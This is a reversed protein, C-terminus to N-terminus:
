MLPPVSTVSFSTFSKSKLLLGNFDMGPTLQLNTDMMENGKLVKKMVNLPCFFYVPLIELTAILDQHFDVIADKECGIPAPQRRCWFTRSGSPFAILKIQGMQM